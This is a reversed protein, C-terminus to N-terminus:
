EKGCARRNNPKKNDGKNETDRHACYNATILVASYVCTVVSWIPVAEPSKRVKPYMPDMAEEAMIPTANWVPTVSLPKCVMAIMMTVTLARASSMVTM